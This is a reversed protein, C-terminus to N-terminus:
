RNEPGKEVPIVRLQTFPATSSSIFRRPIQSHIVPIAPSLCARAPLMWLALDALSVM